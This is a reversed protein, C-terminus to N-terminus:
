SKEKMKKGFLKVITFPGRVGGNFAEAAKLATLIREKPKQGVTSFMSGLALDEGCGVSAYGCNHEGIQYDSDVIFLRGEYGVLFTGASEVDNVKRAYGGTQLCERVADIFITTMFRAVNMDSPRTPVVLSHHLLQGMRFSSTFGFIMDGNRFVKPDSRVTVSLSSVGASDGGIYVSDNDVLGVICTM